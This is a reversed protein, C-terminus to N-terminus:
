TQGPYLCIQFRVTPFTDLSMIVTPQCSLQFAVAGIPQPPQYQFTAFRAQIVGRRRNRRARVFTGTYVLSAVLPAGVVPSAHKVRGRNRLPRATKVFTGTYSPIAVPTAVFPAVVPPALRSKGAVRVTQSYRAARLVLGTFNPTPVGHANQGTVGHPLKIQGARQRFAGAM